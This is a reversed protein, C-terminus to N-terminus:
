HLHSGQIIKKLINPVTNIFERFELKVACRPSGKKSALHMGNDPRLRIGRQVDGSIRASLNSEGSQCSWHRSVPTVTICMDMYPYKSVM